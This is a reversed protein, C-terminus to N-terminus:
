RLEVYFGFAFYVVTWLVLLGISWSGLRQVVPGPTYTGRTQGAQWSVTLLYALVTAGLVGFTSFFM